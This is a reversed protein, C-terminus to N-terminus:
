VKNVQYIMKRSTEFNQTEQETLTFDQSLITPPNTLLEQFEEPEFNSNLYNIIDEVITAEDSGNSKINLTDCIQELQFLVKEHNEVDIETTELNSDYDQIQKQHLQSLLFNILRYYIGDSTEPFYPKLNGLCKYIDSINPNEPLPDITSEYKYLEELLIYITTHFKNLQESTLSELITQFDDITFRLKDEIDLDDLSINLSDITSETFIM